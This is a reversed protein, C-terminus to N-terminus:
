SERIASAMYLLCESKVLFCSFDYVVLLVGWVQPTPTYNPFGQALTTNVLIYLGGYISVISLRKILFYIIETKNNYKKGLGM